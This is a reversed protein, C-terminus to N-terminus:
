DDEDMDDIKYMIKIGTVEVDNTDTDTDANRNVYVLLTDGGAGSLAEDITIETYYTDYQSESAGFTTTASDATTWTNDVQDGNGRAQLKAQFIVTQTNTGATTAIWHVGVKMASATGGEWNEPMPIAIEMTGDTAGDCTCAYLNPGSNIQHAAPDECNTGDAILAGASVAISRWSKQTALVSDIATTLLTPNYNTDDAYLIYGATNTNMYLDDGSIRFDNNLTLINEGNNVQLISTTDDASDSISLTAGNHLALDIALSASGLHIDNLDGLATMTMYAQYTPTDASRLYFTLTGEDSDNNGILYAGIDNGQDSDKFNVTPTAGIIDIDMTFDPSTGFVLAGTGTEGTVASALNASSPTGLWTAVGSGLSTLGTGGKTDPLASTLASALNAGSPTGLWTAVGTGLAALGTGGQAATLPTTLGSLAGGTLTATGDSISAVVMAKSSEWRDDSEDFRLVETNESGNQIVEFILDGNEETEIGDIYAGRIWAVSKDTGPCNSDKFEINPDTSAAQDMSGAAYTNGDDDVYFKSASTKQLDMLYSTGPSATDTKNILLGTDNGSTAKNVTYAFSFATEDGTAANLTKSFSKSDLTQTTVLDVIQGNASIDALQAYHSGNTDYLRDIHGSSNVDAAAVKEFSSGNPIKDLSMVVKKKANSAAADDIVLWDSTTPTAKETLGSISATIGTVDAAVLARFTPVAAGGSVPGAFVYNATQTDLGLEQTTISLLTEANSDLTAAAHGGAAEVATELEQLASKITASGDTITDGTFTGLHTSGEAVGSLTILDDISLLAQSEVVSMAAIGGSAKRGVFTSAGVTLPAPTDDTDAYLITYANYDTEMVAGAANVNTSNTADAGDAVNLLTRVETATLATINGSTIRGVLTQEAVAVAAPTDDATAALITNADYTSLNLKFALQDFVKDASWYKTTDNDGATDDLAGWHQDGDVDLTVTRSGSFDFAYTFSGTGDGDAWTIGEAISGTTLKGADDVAFKSVTAAQLDMLLSTGPAGSGSETKNVVLGTDNGSTAKNVDYNIVVAVEDGTGNNIVIAATTSVKGDGDEALNATSIVGAATTKVLGATSLDLKDPLKDEDTDFVNFIDHFDDRSLTHTTDNDYTGPYDEDVVEVTAGTPWNTNIAAFLKNITDDSANNSFNPYSSGNTIGIDTAAGVAVLKDRVANKSPAITTVTDWSTANWATDSVKADVASTSYFDTGAELDLLGRIAAYDAAGLLSQVNASPTIGAFTQLDADLDSTATYYGMLTKMAAYDAAGLLSQVNASPTIGAFTQLDADLDSTATYYGMLTKM